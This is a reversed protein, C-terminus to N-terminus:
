ETWHPKEKKWRKHTWLWYAPDRLIEEELAKTHMETIVGPKEDIPNETLVKFTIEYHGRSVRKNDGWVVVMNREKAFKEPGFAVATRQNLFTAFHVKKANTPFQDAGFVVVYKNDNNEFFGARVSKRSVFIMGTRTRSEFMVKEFFKNKLQHYIALMQHKLQPQLSIAIYEWNGYHGGVVAVERDQEYYKNLLEPNVIKSRAIIDEPNASFLKITEVVIDFFHKYFTNKLQRIESKTKEPFSNEMNKSVVKNRYNFIKYLILYLIDSIIYLVRWPLLSLPKILLYYVVPM